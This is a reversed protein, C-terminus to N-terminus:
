KPADALGGALRRTCESMVLKYQEATIDASSKLGVKLFGSIWNLIDPKKVGIAEMKAALRNLEDVTLKAKPADPQAVMPKRGYTRDFMGGDDAGCKGDVEDPGPCAEVDNSPDWTPIAFATILGNKIAYSTAKGALKDGNDAAEGKCVHVVRSGDSSDWFNLVLLVAQHYWKRGSATLRETVPGEHISDVAMHIGEAVMAPQVAAYLDDIGRYAYKQETNTRGKEVFAIRKMVGVMAAHIHPPRRTELQEEM